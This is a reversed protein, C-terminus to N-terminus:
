FSMVRPTDRRAERAIGRAVEAVADDLAGDHNVVTLDFQPALPIEAEAAELRRQIDAGDNVGRKVLRDILVQLTPPAIFVLLADPVLERIRRAGQTDVRLLVHKRQKLADRVQQKPTGYYNGYVEAWELLEGNAIMERFEPVSHFMHNVGHVENPRPPRTTATVAVHYRASQEAM